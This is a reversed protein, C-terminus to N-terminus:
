TEIGLLALSDRYIISDIVAQPIEPLGAKAFQNVNNLGEITERPTTIPWDSGFLIKYTQGWEVAFLLAQYFLWPRYFNGSLEVYVNRHKRAMVFCEKQWPHGLHAMIIKLEPFAHAVDDFLIPDAWKLPINAAQATATHFILPIGWEQAQSYIRVVRPDMPHFGHYIPSLKFGKVGLVEVARKFEDLAEAFLPNVSGFPILKEPWRKATAAIRDNGKKGVDGRAVHLLCGKDVVDLDYQFQEWTANIQYTADPRSTNLVPAFRPEDPEDDQFTAHVHMDIIRKTAPPEVPPIARLKRGQAAAQELWSSSLGSAAVAPVVTNRLFDRRNM